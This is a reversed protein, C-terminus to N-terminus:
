KGEVYGGSAYTKISDGIKGGHKMKFPKKYTTQGKKKIKKKARFKQKPRDAEKVPRPKDAPMADKPTRKYDEKQVGRKRPQRKKRLDEVSQYGEDLLKKWRPKKYKQLGAEKM